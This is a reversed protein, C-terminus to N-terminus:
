GDSSLEREYRQGDDVSDWSDSTEDNSSEDQEDQQKQERGYPVITEKAMCRNNYSKRLNRNKRKKKSRIHSRAFHNSPKKETSSSDSSDMTEFVRETHLYTLLKERSFACLVIVYSQTIM